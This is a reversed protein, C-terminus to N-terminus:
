DKSYRPTRTGQMLKGNGMERHIWDVRTGIAPSHSLLTHLRCALRSSAFHIAILVLDESQFLVTNTEGGFSVRTQFSHCPAEDMAITTAADVTM